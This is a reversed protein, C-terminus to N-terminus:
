QAARRSHLKRNQSAEAGARPKIAAPPAIKKSCFGRRLEAQAFLEGVKPESAASLLMLRDLACAVAAGEVLEGPKCSWGLIQLRPDDFARVFAMCRRGRDQATMSVLDLAGFKSDQNGVAAVTMGRPARAAVESAAPAFHDTETGPRYIEVLFRADLTDGEGTQGWALIDKRGGSRTQRRISYKMEGDPEALTLDFAPYPREVTIWDSPPPKPAPPLPRTEFLSAALVSLMALGGIYAIFRGATEQIEGRAFRLAPHM